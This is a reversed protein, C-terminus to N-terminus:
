APTGHAPCSRHKAVGTKWIGHKGHLATPTIFVQEATRLAGALDRMLYAATWLGSWFSVFSITPAALIGDDGNHPHLCRACPGGQVHFSSMASWHTTAGIGVWNPAVSQVDWRTPIDDVGVIIHPALRELGGAALADQFTAAIPRVPLSATSYRSMDMAKQRGSSDSAMLMCRNHNTDEYSQPEIIRVAGRVGPIRLLAFLSANTVAGASVVDVSGLNDAFATDEPALRVVHDTFIQFREDFAEFSLAYPRLRQMSYKFAEAAAIAAAAM